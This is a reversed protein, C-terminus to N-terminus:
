FAGYNKKYQLERIFFRKNVESYMLKNNFAALRLNSWEKQCARQQAAADTLSANREVCQMMNDLSRFYDTNLALDPNVYHGMQMVNTANTAEGLEGGTAQLFFPVAAPKNAHLSNM